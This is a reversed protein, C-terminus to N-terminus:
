AAGIMKEFTAVNGFDVVRNAVDRDVGISDVRREVDVRQQRQRREAKKSLRSEDASFFIL